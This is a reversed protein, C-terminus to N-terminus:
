HVLTKQWRDWWNFYLGYNGKFHAHHYNHSASRNLYKLVPNHKWSEPYIEVGLHGMVNMALAMISFVVIVSQHLPVIFFIPLIWAIETLAELPHFSFAAFPTPNKSEHHVKHFIRFLKPHHLTRHMWYFYTDHALLMFILSVPLWWLGYQSFDTYIKTSSKLPESFATGLVAAFIASTLISYSMERKIDQWKFAQKQFKKKESESKKYKWFYTYAGGAFVFYRIVQFLFIISFIKIWAMFMYYSSKSMNGVRKTSM